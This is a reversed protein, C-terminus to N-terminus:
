IHKCFENPCLFPLPKLSSIWHSSANWCGIRGFIIAVTAQSKADPQPETTIATLKSFQWDEVTNLLAM